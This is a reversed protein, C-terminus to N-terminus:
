IRAWEEYLEPDDNRVQDLFTHRFGINNLESLLQNPIHLITQYSNVHDIVKIAHTETLLIHRLAADLRSFGLRRMDRVLEIIQKTIHIDLYNVQLLYQDLSPGSIYEIINYNPGAEFLKPFFPSSQAALLANAERIAEAEIAYIKICRDPALQFVAGQAGAGIFPYSTPNHFAVQYNMGSRHVGPYVTIAKFDHLM